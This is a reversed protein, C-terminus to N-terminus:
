WWILPKVRKWDLNKNDVVEGGEFEVSSARLANSPDASIRKIWKGTLNTLTEGIDIGDSLRRM